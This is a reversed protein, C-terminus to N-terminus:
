EPVERQMMKKTEMMAVLFEQREGMQETAQCLEQFKQAHITLMRKHEDWRPASAVWTENEGQRGFHRNDVSQENVALLFYELEKIDVELSECRDLYEVM